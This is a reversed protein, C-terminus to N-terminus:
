QAVLVATLPPSADFVLTVKTPSATGMMLKFPIAGTACAPTTTCESAVSYSVNSRWNNDFWPNSPNPGLISSAGSWGPDPTPNRPILGSLGGSSQCQNAYGSGNGCTPDTSLAATPLLSHAIFYSNLAASIESAVRKQVVTMLDAVTIIALRDNFNASAAQSIYGPGGAANVGDLYNSVINQNAASDRAQGPLATGPSFIIAAVNNAPTLGSVTILSTTTNNISVTAAYDRFNPSLVYWLRDGNADRLDPLGLTRWPLRGIYSPCNPGAFLDAIGDNPVNTGPINTILDPCPLSGPLSQDTAARAILAQKALALAVTTKRNQENSIATSNLSTVFLTIAALGLIAVLVLAAYGAQRRPVRPRNTTQMILNIM